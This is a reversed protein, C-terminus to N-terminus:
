LLHLIQNRKRKTPLSVHIWRLNKEDILQGTEIEGNAIMENMLRWLERNDSCIIDAAEGNMHQSRPAGGVAKNLQRSRYGSTVRIPQGLKDRVPQLIKMCLHQLNTIQSVSPENIINLRRATSSETFEELTFNESLTM